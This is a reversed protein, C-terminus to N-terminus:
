NRVPDKRYDEKWFLVLFILATHAEGIVALNTAIVAATRHTNQELSPRCLKPARSSFQGKKAESKTKTGMM